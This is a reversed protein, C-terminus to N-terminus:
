TIIYILVYIFLNNTVLKGTIWPSEETRIRDETINFLSTGELTSGTGDSSTKHFVTDSRIRMFDKNTLDVVEWYECQFKFSRM